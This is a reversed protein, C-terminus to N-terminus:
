RDDGILNILKSTESRVIRRHDFKRVEAVKIKMKGKIINDVVM